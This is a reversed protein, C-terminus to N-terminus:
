NSQSLTLYSAEFDATVMKPRANRQLRVSNLSEKLISYPCEM